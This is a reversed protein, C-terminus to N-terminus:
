RIWNQFYMNGEADVVDTRHLSTFLLFLISVCTHHMIVTFYAKTSWVVMVLYFILDLVALCAVLVKEPVGM